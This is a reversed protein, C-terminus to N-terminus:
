SAGHVSAVASLVTVVVVAIVAALIGGGPAAYREFRSVFNDNRYM